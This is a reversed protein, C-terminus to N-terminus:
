GTDPAGSRPSIGCVSSALFQYSRAGFTSAIFSSIVRKCFSAPIFHGGSNITDITQGLGTLSPKTM